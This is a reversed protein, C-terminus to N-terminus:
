LKNEFWYAAKKTAIKSLNNETLIEEFKDKEMKANADKFEKVAAKFSKKDTSYQQYVEFRLIKQHIDSLVKQLGESLIITKGTATCILKGQREFKKIWENVKGAVKKNLQKDLNSLTDDLNIEPVKGEIQKLQHKFEKKLAKKAEKHMDIPKEDADPWTANKWLELSADFSKSTNIINNILM